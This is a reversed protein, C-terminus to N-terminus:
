VREKSLDKYATLTAYIAEYLSEVERNLPTGAKLYSVFSDLGLGEEVWSDISDLGVRSPLLGKHNEVVEMVSARWVDIQDVRNAVYDAFGDEAKTWEVAEEAVL